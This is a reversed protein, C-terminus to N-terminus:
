ENDLKDKKDKAKQFDPKIALADNIDKKAGAKDGKKDKAEGRLYLSYADNPDDTILEDLDTIAADPLDKKLNAKARRFKAKKNDPDLALAADADLIANDPDGKMIYAQARRSYAKAKRETTEAIDSIIETCAAITVDMKGVLNCDAKDAFAGVTIVVVLMLCVVIGWGTKIVTQRSM